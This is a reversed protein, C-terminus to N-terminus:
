APIYNCNTTRGSSLCRNGGRHPPLHIPTIEHWSPQKNKNRKRRLALLSLASFELTVTSPEPIILGLIQFSGNDLDLYDIRQGDATIIIAGNNTFTDGNAGTFLTIIDGENFADANKDLKLISGEALMIAASNINTFDTSGDASVFSITSGAGLSLSGALGTTSDQTVNWSAGSTISLNLSGMGPMYQSTHGDFNTGNSLNIVLTTSYSIIQNKAGDLNVNNLNITGTGGAGFVEMVLNNGDLSSITSNTLSISSDQSTMLFGLVGFMSTETSPPNNMVSITSDHLDVIGGQGQAIISGETISVQRGNITGSGYASLGVGGASGGNIRIDVNDLEVIQESINHIGYGPQSWTATLDIRTNSIYSTQSAEDGIQIGYLSGTGNLTITNWIGEGTTTLNIYKGHFLNVGVMSAQNHTIDSSLNINTGKYSADANDIEVVSFLGQSEEFFYRDSNSEAYDGAQDILLPNSTQQASAHNVMIGGIFPLILLYPKM